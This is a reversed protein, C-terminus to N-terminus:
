PPDLRDLLAEFEALLTAHAAAAASGPELAIARMMRGVRSGDGASGEQAQRLLGELDPNGGHRALFHEVLQRELHDIQADGACCACSGSFMVQM